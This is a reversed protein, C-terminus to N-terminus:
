FADILSRASDPVCMLAKEQKASILEKKAMSEFDDITRSLAAISAAIQGIQRPLCLLHLLISTLGHSLGSNRALASSGQLSASPATASAMADLDANLSGIQRQGHSYLSNM